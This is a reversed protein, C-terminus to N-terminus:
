ALDYEFIGEISFGNLKKKLILDWVKDNEIEYELMWTGDPLSHFNKSISTRNTKALIFSKTMIIGDLLIGNHNINVRNDYHKKHFKERCKKITEASFFVYHPESIKSTPSRLIKKDPIMAPGFIINAM